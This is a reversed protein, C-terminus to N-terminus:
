TIDEEHPTINLPKYSEITENQEKVSLQFLWAPLIILVMGSAFVIIPMPRVRSWPIPYIVLIMKM